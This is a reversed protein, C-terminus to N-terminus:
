DCAYTGDVIGTATHLTVGANREFLLGDQDRKICYMSVDADFDHTNINWALESWLGRVDITSSPAGLATAAFPVNAPRFEVKQGSLLREFGTNIQAGSVLTQLRTTLIAMALAYTADYGSHAGDARKGDFREAYSREFTAVNDQLEPSYGPRSGSIRKRLDENTGILSAFPEIEYNLVTTVYHPRRAGTWKAEIGPLYYTTFDAGMAVVLIDPEFEAIANYHNEHIVAKVRPDEPVFRRFLAGNQETTKDGNFRLLQELKASFGDTAREKSLLLGVKIDAPPSPLAKIQAELQKVRWAVMPAELELRPVVRWSLTGTPLAGLCDACAVPKGQLSPENAIAAIDEDSDVILAQAGVVKTLHELASKAGAATLGSDCHVVAIPRVKGGPFVVGGGLKALIEEIALDISRRVRDSYVNKVPAGGPQAITLPLISGIMIANKDKAAPNVTSKCQETQWIICPGAGPTPCVSIQDSNERTCTETDVCASADPTQTGTEPTDAVCFGERCTRNRLAPNSECDRDTSCQTADATDLLLSCGGVLFAVVGLTSITRLASRSM